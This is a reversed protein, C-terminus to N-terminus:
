SIALPLQLAVQGLLSLAYALGGKSDAKRCLALGEELLPRAQTHETQIILDHALYLLPWAVDGPYGLTRLLALSEEFLRSAKGYDKEFSAARALVVLFYATRWPDDYLSRKRLWPM